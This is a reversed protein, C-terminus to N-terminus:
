SSEQLFACTLILVEFDVVLDEKVVPPAPLTGVFSEGPKLTQTYGLGVLSSNNM